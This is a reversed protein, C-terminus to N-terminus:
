VHARGIKGYALADQHGVMTGRAALTTLNTLLAATQPTAEPDSAASKPAENCSALATLTMLATASLTKLNM